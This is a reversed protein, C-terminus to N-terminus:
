NKKKAWGVIGCSIEEPNFDVIDDIKEGVGVFVIPVIKEVTLQLLFGAKNTGDFKTLILGTVNVAEKFDKIQSVANQGTNADVVIWTHEIPQYNAKLIVRRMKKLEEVLNRNNPLRGATDILLLDINNKKSSQIAQYAAAAPDNVVSSFIEISNKEGWIALQENAAARFTDCAAVAVRYRKEKFFNALKAITTTKGTGNVGIILIVVLQKTKKAHELNKLLDDPKVLLTLKKQIINKLSLMADEPSFIEKNAQIQDRIESTIDASTKPGVDALILIEELETWMDDNFKEASFVETIQKRINKLSDWVSKKKTTKQNDFSNGMTNTEGLM